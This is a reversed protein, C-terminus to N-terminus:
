ALARQQGLEVRRGPRHPGAAGGRVGRGQRRLDAQPPGVAALPVGGALFSDALHAIERALASASGIPQGTSSSILVIKMAAKGITQGTRGQHFVRNWLWIGLSLIGGLTTLGLGAIVTVHDTQRAPDGSQYITAGSSQLGLLMVLGVVYPLTGVAQVLEDILRAAVRTWWGAPPTWTGRGFDPLHTTVTAEAQSM